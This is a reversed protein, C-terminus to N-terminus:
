RLLFWYRKPIGQLDELQWQEDAARLIVSTAIAAADGMGAAPTSCNIELVLHVDDLRVASVLLLPQGANDPLGLANVIERRASLEFLKVANELADATPLKAGL